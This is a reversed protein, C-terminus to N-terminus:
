GPVCVREPVSSARSRGRGPALAHAAAPRRAGDQTFPAALPLFGACGRPQLARLWPCGSAPRPTGRAGPLPPRLTCRVHLPRALECGGAQPPSLASVGLPRAPSPSDKPHPTGPAPPPNGPAPCPIGPTPPSLLDHKRLFTGTCGAPDGVRAGRSGSPQGQGGLSRGGLPQSHPAPPTLTPTDVPRHALARARVPGPVEPRVELTETGEAICLSSSVPSRAPARPESPGPPGAAGARTPLESGARCGPGPRADPLRAGCGAAWDSPSSHGRPHTPPPSQTPPRRTSSRLHSARWREPRPGRGAPWPRLPILQPTPPGSLGWACASVCVPLFAGLCACASVCPTCVRRRSPFPGGCRQLTARGAPGGPPAAPLMRDGLRGRGPIPGGPSAPFARDELAAESFDGGAGGACSPSHTDNGPSTAPGWLGPTQLLPPTCFLWFSTTLFGGSEPHLCSTWGM